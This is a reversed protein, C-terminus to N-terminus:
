RQKIIGQIPTLDQSIYETIGVDEEGFQITSGVPRQLSTLLSHSPPLIDDLNLTTDDLKPRKAPRESDSDSDSESGPMIPNVAM